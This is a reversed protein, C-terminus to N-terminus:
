VKELELTETMRKTVKLVKGKHRRALQKALVPDIYRKEDLMINADVVQYFTSQVDTLILKKM